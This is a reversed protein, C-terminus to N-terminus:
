CEDARVVGTDFMNGHDRLYELWQLEVTIELNRQCSVFSQNRRSQLFHKGPFGTTCLMTQTVFGSTSFEDLRITSIFNVATVNKASFNHPAKASFFNRVNKRDFIATM